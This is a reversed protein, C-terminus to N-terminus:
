RLIGGEFTFYKPHFKALVPRLEEITEVTAHVEIKVLDAITLAQDLLEAVNDLHYLFAAADAFAERCHVEDDHFSFAYYLCNPESKVKEVLGQCVGKFEDIKGSHIKFYPAVACYNNDINKTNGM